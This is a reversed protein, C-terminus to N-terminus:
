AGRVPIRRPKSEESKPLHVALVGHEYEASIRDSDVVDSLVLERDFDGVGYEHTLYENDRLQRAQVTGHIVLTRNEFNVRIDDATTGPMDALITFKEADEIIDIRPQYSWGSASPDQRAQASGPAGPNIQINDGTM